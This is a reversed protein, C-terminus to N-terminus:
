VGIHLLHVGSIADKIARFTETISIAWVWCRKISVIVENSVLCVSEDFHQLRQSQAGVIILIKYADFVRKCQKRWNFIGSVLHKM